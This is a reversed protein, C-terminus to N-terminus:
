NGRTNPDDQQAPAKGADDALKRLSRRARDFISGAKPEAAGETRAAAPAPASARGADSREGAAPAPDPALSSRTADANDAPASLRKGGEGAEAM